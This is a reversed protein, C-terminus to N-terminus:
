GSSMSSKAAEVHQAAVLQVRTGAGADAARGYTLISYARWNAGAELGFCGAQGRIRMQRKSGLAFDVIKVPRVQNARRAPAREACPRRIRRARRPVGIRRETLSRARPMSSLKGRGMFDNVM